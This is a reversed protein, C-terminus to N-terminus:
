RFIFNLWEEVEERVVIHFEGKWGTHGGVLCSCVPPGMWVIDPAGGRGGLALWKDIMVVISKGVQWTGGRDLRLRHSMLKSAKLLAEM